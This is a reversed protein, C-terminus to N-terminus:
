SRSQLSFSVWTAEKFQKVHKHSEPDFPSQDELEKVNDKLLKQFDMGEVSNWLGLYLTSYKLKSLTRSIYSKPDSPTCRLKSKSYVQTLWVEDFEKRQRQKKKM